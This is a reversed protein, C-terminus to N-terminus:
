ARSAGAVRRYPAGVVGLGRNRRSDEPELPIPSREVERGVVKPLTLRFQSGDGPEGWAQLWGGHLHADELAISLGLGTGGTTRARAPDARWFRNFVLSSEGPKLGVGYDRVAVAVSDDSAAVKIVVDRGEGYEVANVVLNRLVREIRRPDMEAVCPEAPEKVILRSGNRAALPEHAEVVRHVIERIDVPEAELVAAGADFRSIELLDTLLSEFRDLQNQLLESARSVHPDFSDRAEHLVDAAMRVTTLPTRLEHSVDSVFRRQVRSLEELQRIQRQLNTAMKNFSSALRALDDEGQVQMREELRGAALREAIRAAMRVPTVVQRTVLWAIVGLLVCLFASATVLTNRVLSLTEQEQTLPFVYYLEYDGQYPATLLTGVALAPTSRYGGTREDYRASIYQFAFYGDGGRLAHERGKRFVEDRLTAPISDPRLQGSAMPSRAAPDTQGGPASLLAVDYLRGNSGGSALKEMLERLEQSLNATTTAPDTNQYAARAERFGGGAQSLAAEQKAALLGDRVQRVLAMGLFFAVAVSLLLTTAVVRLQISRRWVDVAGCVLRRVQQLLWVVAQHARRVAARVRTVTVEVPVVRTIVGAM